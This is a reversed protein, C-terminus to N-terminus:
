QGARACVCKKKLQIIARPTFAAHPLTYVVAPVEQDFCEQATKLKEVMRAKKAQFKNVLAAGDGRWEGGTVGARRHGDDRGEMAM